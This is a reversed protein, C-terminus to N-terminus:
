KRRCIGVLSIGFPLSIGKKMLSIEAKLVILMLSNLFRPIRPAEIHPKSKRNLLKSIVVAPSIIFYRYSLFRVSFLGSLIAKLRKKSYRRFHNLAKDHASYLSQHAPVTFIFYGGPKLASCIKEVAKRDDEIHELVDFAVVLDYKEKPSFDLISKLHAQSYSDKPILGIAKRDTDLIDVIGFRNLIKLENGDGCGVSLIRSGPQLHIKSLMADALFLQARNTFYGQTIGAQRDKYDM